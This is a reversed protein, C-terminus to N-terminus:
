LINQLNPVIIHEYSKAYYILLNIEVILEDKKNQNALTVIKNIQEGAEEMNIHNVVLCFYGETKDWFTKLSDIESLIRENNVNDSLEVNNALSLSKEYLLNLNNKLFTEEVICLGILILFLSIIIFGRKM